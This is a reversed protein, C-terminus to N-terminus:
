EQLIGRKLYYGPEYKVFRPVSLFRIVFVFGVKWYEFLEFGVKEISLCSLILKKLVWVVWFWSKWYEFLEFGIKEISLCSLVLKKLVIVVWVWGVNWKGLWMRLGCPFAHVYTCIKTHKKLTRSKDTRRPWKTKWGRWLPWYGGVEVSKKDWLKDM